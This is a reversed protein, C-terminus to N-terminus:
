LEQAAPEQAPLVFTGGSVDNGFLSDDSITEYEVLTDGEPTDTVIISVEDAGVDYDWVGPDGTGSCNTSAAYVATPNDYDYSDGNFTYKQGRELTSLDGEFYLMHMASGESNSTVVNVETFDYGSGSDHYGTASALGGIDAVPGMSGYTSADRVDLNSWEAFEAIFEDQQTNQYLNEDYNSNLERESACATLTAAALATIALVRVM